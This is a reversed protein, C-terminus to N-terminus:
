SPVSEQSLPLSQAGVLFVGAGGSEFDLWILDLDAFRNAVAEESNGVEVILVGNPTLFRGATGLIQQVIDLGDDGAALGLAPEHSFEVALDQMDQRDVYPPNSVILEYRQNSPLPAFLNGEFLQMRDGLDHKRRNLEALALADSSIDAAHVRTQPFAKAMAIGICGGGCCLDLVAEPAEALWPQFCQGILEAIPSRPILARDDTVFELGAFWSRGTLYAAPIQREARERYWSQARGLQVHTVSISYDGVPEVPSLDCAEIALWASEDFPNDTGHGYVLDHTSLYQHGAEILEALTCNELDFLGVPTNNM